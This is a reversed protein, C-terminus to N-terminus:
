SSTTGSSRAKRVPRERRSLLRHREARRLLERERQTILATALEPHLNM